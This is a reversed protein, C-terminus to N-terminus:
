MQDDVNDAADEAAGEINEGADELNQEVGGDCAFTSVSIVFLLAIIKLLSNKGPKM